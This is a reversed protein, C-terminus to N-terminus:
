DIDVVRGLRGWMPDIQTRGKATKALAEANVGRPPLLRVNRGKAVPLSHLDVTEPDHHEWVLGLGVSRAEFEAKLQRALEADQVQSLLSDLANAM